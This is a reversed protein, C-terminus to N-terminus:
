RPYQISYTQHTASYPHVSVSVTVTIPDRDVPDSSGDLTVAPARDVEGFPHGTLPATDRTPEGMRVDAPTDAERGGVPVERDPQGMLPHHRPDVLPLLLDRERDSLTLSRLHAIIRSIRTGENIVGGTEARDVRASAHHLAVVEWQDNFVPSGSSGPETDASYHLYRELIDVLKNERLSIMKRQGRPHHVITTFEGIVVTGQADTLKNFGFERLQDPTADVATLAFDLDRDSIHFHDPNLAFSRVPLPEGDLGNQYNFEISSSAAVDADPLVHHNTLLLNPAVLFGTGYGRGRSINVRGVSRAAAVGADLYRIGVYDCTNIIAEVARGLANAERPSPRPPATSPATDPAAGFAVADPPAISGHDYYQSLRDLRRAIRDPTNTAAVGGSHGLAEENSARLRARETARAAAALQQAQKEDNPPAAAPPLMDIITM